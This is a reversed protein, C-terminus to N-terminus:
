VMDMLDHWEDSTLFGNEYMSWIENIFKKEAEVITIKEKCRKIFGCLAIEYADM